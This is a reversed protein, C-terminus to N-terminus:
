PPAIGVVFLGRRDAEAVMQPRDIVLAGGAEAAIGCLGAAAAQEVTRPGITPLDARREQGPKKMKVLVGGQGERRLARCREILADTGEIAEVGLVVGQQVIAAQGVDAAGLSRAVEMGLRIDRWAAEDPAVAGMVGVPMLADHLLSDVGIVRFGERELERVLLSLLANDGQGLVRNLKTLLAIGRFDLKLSSLSPRKIPGAMVVEKCGADKLARLLAGVAGLKLWKHAVGQCAAPETFGEFAILFFPRGSAKCAQAIRGPLAGGGAIIGLSPSPAM